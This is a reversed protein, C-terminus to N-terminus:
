DGALKTILQKLQGPDVPKVLHILFGAERSLQLDEEMGYGSLAIAKVPRRSQLMRLLEQGSGDPLGVDSVVLDFDSRDFQEAADRVSGAVSVQHGFSEILKATVRATAEHDEVLLIRHHGDLPQRVPLPANVAPHVPADSRGVAGPLEVVFTSGKAAGDSSAGITGHHMGILGKCIALGLGLGGYRRTITAEGQEFADFIRELVEPEIGKGTDKVEVRLGGAESRMAGISILGHDPTFKIANKILNWFVQQLRAPDADVLIPASPLQLQVAIQKEIAEARCTEVAHRLVECGDVIRRNLSLKGRVIRTLDLMDDILRAELEVNRRIIEVDELLDPALREDKQLMTAALLAPNLPTRLEHSLVALFHDKARSAAEAAEKARQMEQEAQVLAEIDTATGFWKVVNGEADKEPVGRSLYWRYRGDRMRVRHKVQYVEGTFLANEWAVLTPGADQQHLVPTWLWDGEPTQVVGDLEQVRRNFFDITGDPQATWVLQPMSDALARFQREGERVAQEVQKRETIDLFAGICGRVAGQDDRLPAVGGLMTVERGSTMRVRLEVDRLERNTAAAKQMPLEDPPLARGEQDYFVRAEPVTSASVNEGIEAEYLENARKNGVISKCEPDKAVWVAAPVVEFLTKYLTESERVSDRLRMAELVTSCRAAVWNALRFQDETWARAEVSYFEVAGIAEQGVHVPTALIARFEGGAAPKPFMLDKRYDADDIAATRKQLMALRALSKEVPWSVVDGEGAAIGSHAHVHLAGARVEMVAVGTIDPGLLQLGHDCMATLVDVEGASPHTASLLSQLLEERRYLETNSNQLEESKAAIESSQLELEEAQNRLEENQQTLEESQVRLEDNQLGVEEERAALEDNLQALEANRRELNGRLGIVANVIAAGVALNLLTTFYAAARRGFPLANEPMLLWIQVTALVLFAGVMFGLMRRDKTWVCILLPLVYTLPLLTDGFAVLKILGWAAVALGCIVWGVAPPPTKELIPIPEQRRM